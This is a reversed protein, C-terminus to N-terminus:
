EDSVALLQGDMSWYKIEYRNPAQETGNGVATKTKIVQIVEVEVTGNKM